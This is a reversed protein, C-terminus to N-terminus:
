KMKLPFIAFLLDYLFFALVIAAIGAAAVFVRKDRGSKTFFHKIKKKLSRKKRRVRRRIVMSQPQMTPSGVVSDGGM